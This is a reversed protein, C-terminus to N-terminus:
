VFIGATEDLGFMIIMNQNAQGASGKVLKDEMALIIMRITKQVKQVALRYFNTGMVCGTVSHSETTM